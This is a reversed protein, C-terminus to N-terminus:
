DAHRKNKLTAIENKLDLVYGILIVIIIAGLLFGIAILVSADM